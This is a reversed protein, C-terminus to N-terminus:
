NQCEVEEYKRDLTTGYMRYTCNTPGPLTKNMIEGWPDWVLGTAAEAMINISKADGPLNKTFTWGATKEGYDEEKPQLVGNADPELWSLKIRAVYAGDHRLKIMANNHEVCNTEIYESTSYISALEDKQLYNVTYSLPMGPNNRAFLAGNYIVNKLQKLGEVDGTIVTPAQANGGLAYIYFTSSELTKKYSADITGGIKNTGAAYNLAAKLDASADTRETEMRIMLMRGYDVSKVYAPPDKDNIVNKVEALTTTAPFFDAPTTPKDCAVTYFIQKFFAVTIDKESNYTMAADVSVNGQAWKAKFGLELAAQNSDYLRTVSLFQNAGNVYYDPSSVKSSPNQQFWEEILMNTASNMTSIKPDDVVRSGSQQGRGGSGALLLTITMPARAISISRPQGEALNRDGYILAGPFITRSPFSIDKMAKGVGANKKEKTCIIVSNGLDKREKPKFSEKIGEGTTSLLERPDYTLERNIFENIANRESAPQTTIPTPATVVSPKTLYKDPVADSRSELIIYKEVGNFIVKETWLNLAVNQDTDLEKLAITWQDRGTEVYSTKQGNISSEWLDNTMEEFYGVANSSGKEAIIVSQAVPAEVKQGYLNAICTTM